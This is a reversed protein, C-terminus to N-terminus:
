NKHRDTFMPMTFKYINSSGNESEVWISGGHKEVFEKCLLLGLTSGKEEATGLFSNIHSSSFLKNAYEATSRNGKDIVSIIVYPFEERASINISEGRETSKIANSVLNRLITKLMFFDAFVNIEEEASHTIAINKADADPM